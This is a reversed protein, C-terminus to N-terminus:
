YENLEGKQQEETCPNDKREKLIEKYSDIQLKGNTKSLLYADMWCKACVSM